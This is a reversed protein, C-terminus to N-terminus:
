GRTLKVHWRCRGSMLVGEVRDQEGTSHVVQGDFLITLLQKDGGAREQKANVTGDSGITGSLVVTNQFPAFGVGGQGINMLGTTTAGCGAGEPSVPGVWRGEIGGLSLVRGSQLRTALDDGDCGWVLLVLAIGLGYSTKRFPPINGKGLHGMFDYLDAWSASVRAVGRHWASRGNVVMVVSGVGRSMRSVMM